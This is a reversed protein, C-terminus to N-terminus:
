VKNLASVKLYYIIVEKKYIISKGEGKKVSFWDEPRGQGGGWVKDEEGGWRTDQGPSRPPFCGGGTQIQPQLM